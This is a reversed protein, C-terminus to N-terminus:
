EGRRMQSGLKRASTRASATATTNTSPDSGSENCFGLSAPDSGAASGFSVCGGRRTIVAAVPRARRREM